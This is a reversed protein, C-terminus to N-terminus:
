RQRDQELYRLGSEIAGLAFVNRKKKRGLQDGLCSSM